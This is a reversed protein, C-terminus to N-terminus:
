DNSARRRQPKLVDDIRALFPQVPAFSSKASRLQRRLMAQFQEGVTLNLGPPGLAVVDDLDVMAVQLIGHRKLPSPLARCEEIAQTFERKARAPRGAVFLVLALDFRVATNPVPSASIARLLNDLAQEYEGLRYSCWGALSGDGNPFAPNRSLQTLVRKYLRQAQLQRNMELLADAKTRLMYLDDPQRKLARNAATVVTGPSVTTLNSYAWALMADVDALQSSRRRALELIRVAREFDGMASLLLGASRLMWPSPETSLRPELMRAAQLLLGHATLADLLGTVLSDDGPEARVVRRVLRVAEERRGSDLLLQVRQSTLQPNDESGLVALAEDLSGAAGLAASLVFRADPNADDAQFASRAATIAQEVQGRELLIASKYVLAACATQDMSPKGASASALISEVRQLARDQEGVLWALRVVRPDDALQDDRLLERLQRKALSGEGFEVEADILEIRVESLSADRRLAERLDDLCRKDNLNRRIQGRLMLIRADVADEDVEQLVEDARKPEGLHNLADALSARVAISGPNEQLAADLMARAEPYRGLATLAIGETVQLSPDSVGQGRLDIVVALAEQARGVQTLLETRLVLLQPDEGIQRIAEDLVDLAAADGKVARAVDTAVQAVTESGPYVVRARRVEDVAEEHQDHQALYAGLFVHAYGDEPCLDVARRLDSEPDSGDGVQWESLGRIMFLRAREMRDREAESPRREASGSGLGVHAVALAGTHDEANWLTTALEGIRGDMYGAVTAAAVPDGMQQRLVGFLEAAWAPNPECELSRRLDQEAALLDPIKLQRHVQGRAAFLSGDGPLTAIARDLVTLAKDPRGTFTLAEALNRFSVADKKNRKICRRLVRVADDYESLQLLIQGQRALLGPDDPSLKLAKDLAHAATRLDGQDEHLSSAWSWAETGELGFEAARDLQEDLVADRGSVANVFGLLICLYPNVPRRRLAREVDSVAEDPRKARIWYRVSAYIVALEGPHIQLVRDLADRAEPFDGQLSHVDAAFLFDEAPADPLDLVRAMQELADKRRGGLELARALARITIAELGSGPPADSPFELLSIADEDRGALRLLDALMVTALRNAPDLRHALEAAQQAQQQQAADLLLAAAVLYDVARDQDRRGDLGAMLLHYRAVTPAERVASRALRLRTSPDTTGEAAEAALVALPRPADAALQLLRSRLPDGVDLLLAHDALDAGDLEDATAHEFWALAERRRTQAEPHGPDLRALAATAAAKTGALLQSEWAASAALSLALDCNKVADDPRGEGEAKRADIVAQRALAPATALPILGPTPLERAMLKIRVGAIM